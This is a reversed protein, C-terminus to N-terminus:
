ELLDKLAAANSNNNNIRGLLVALGRAHRHHAVVKKASDFSFYFVVSSIVLM